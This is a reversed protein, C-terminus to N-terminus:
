YQNGFGRRLWKVKDLIVAGGMRATGHLRPEAVGRSYATGCGGLGGSGLGM